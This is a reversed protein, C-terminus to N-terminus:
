RNADSLFVEVWKALIHVGFLHHGAPFRRIYAGLTVIIIYTAWADLQIDLIFYGDQWKITM